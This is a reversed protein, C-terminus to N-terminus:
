TCLRDNNKFNFYHINFLHFIYRSIINSTSMLTSNTEKPQKGFNLCGFSLENEQTEFFSGCSLTSFNASISHFYFFFQFIQGLDFFDWFNFRTVSDRHALRHGVQLRVLVLVLAVPGVDAVGAALGKGAVPHQAGVLERM